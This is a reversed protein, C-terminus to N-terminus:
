INNKSEDNRTQTVTMTTPATQRRRYEEERSKKRCRRVLHKILYGIELLMSFIIVGGLMYIVSLGSAERRVNARVLVLLCVSVLIGVEESLLFLNSKVDKFPRVLVSYVLSVLNIAIM